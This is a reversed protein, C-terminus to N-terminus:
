PKRGTHPRYERQVTELYANVQHTIEADNWGLEAAMVAAVERAIGAGQDKDLLVIHTRRCLFDSLTLAMEHRCAYAAEAMLYPLDPVIRRGLQESEGAIALVDRINGGYAALLHAIVDEGFRSLADELLSNSPPWGLMGDLATDKTIDSPPHSDRQAILDVTDEAMRRWTTLKGGVISIMGAPGELVAHSRSLRASAKESSGVGILPRFGAFASLIDAHTLSKKLYRNCHALLYAVDEEMTTPSEIDGGPTDTTGVLVRGEWPIIFLLRGDDTEPLVIADDGIPLSDRSFVLHAGKAPAITLESAMGTLEEIRQAFVGAANVVYSSQIPYERSDVTDRVRTHAIGEGAMEFAVVEAYNAALAGHLAATRLVTLTLRCDDTQGDYYLFAHTLGRERLAPARESAEDLSLRRHGKLRNTGSISDYLMLGSQIILDLGIGLPPAIPLGLPRRSSAYL